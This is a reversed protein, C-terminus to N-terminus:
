RLYTKLALFIVVALFGLAAEYERNARYRAWRFKGGRSSDSGRWRPLFLPVARAYTEFAQGYQRRLEGSERNMVPWYIALFYVVFAVGLIWRGSAISLGFGILFSGLYLPNRTRSYPGAIALTKGKELFGAARARVALGALAVVAGAVLLVFKPQAFVLYALGLAFGLSVRWRAAWAAYVESM